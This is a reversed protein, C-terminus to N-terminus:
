RVFLETSALKTGTRTIEVVKWERAEVDRPAHRGQTSLNQRPCTPGHCHILSFALALMCYTNTYTHMNMGRYRHLSHLVKINIRM